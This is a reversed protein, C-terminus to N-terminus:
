IYVQDFINLKGELIRVLIFFIFVLYMLMDDYELDLYYRFFTVYFFGILNLFFNM